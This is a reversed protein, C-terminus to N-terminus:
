ELLYDPRRHSRISAAASPQGAIRGYRRCRPLVGPRISCPRLPRLFRGRTTAASTGIAKDFPSYLAQHAPALVILHGGPRLHTASRALEGLDDDIHELVDIYLITDFREDAPARVRNLVACTGSVALSPCRPDSQASSPSQTRSWPHGRASGGTASSILRAAWAPGSKWCTESWTRDLARAFVGELAHRTPLSRARQRRSCTVTRDPAQM